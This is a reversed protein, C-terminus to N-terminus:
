VKNNSLNRLGNKVLAWSKFGTSSHCKLYLKLDDVQINESFRVRGSTNKLCRALSFWSVPEDKFPVPNQIHKSKQIYWPELYAM